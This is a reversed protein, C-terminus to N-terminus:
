IAKWGNGNERKWLRLDARKAHLRLVAVIAEARDQSCALLVGVGAVQSADIDVPQGLVPAVLLRAMARATGHGQLDALCVAYETAM